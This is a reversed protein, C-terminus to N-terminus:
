TDDMRANDIVTSNHMSIAVFSMMGTSKLKLSIVTNIYKTSSNMVPAYHFHIGQGFSVSAFSLFALLLIAQRM